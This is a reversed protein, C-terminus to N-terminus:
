EEEEEGARDEMRMLMEPGFEDRDEMRMRLEELSDIVGQAPEARINGVVILAGDDYYLLNQGRGTSVEILV